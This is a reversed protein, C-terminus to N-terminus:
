NKILRLSVSDENNLIRVNYIGSPWDQIFVPEDKTVTKKLILKGQIDFVEVESNESQNLIFFQDNTPNPYILQQLSQSSDDKIDTCINVIVELTATNKCGINSVGTVTYITTVTPSNVLSPTIAGINNWTYSIASGSAFMTVSQGKCILTNSASVFIPPVPSVTVIAATRSVSNTCTFAEAYYSYTGPALTPTSLTNGLAVTNGGVPANYWTISGSGIATLSTSSGGCISLSPSPTTHSPNAPTTCDYFQVFFGDCGGLGYTSQHSGPTAILTGSPQDTLGALYVHDTNDTACGYANDYGAGGYYTAWIRSGSPSLQALFGDYDGGGYTSMFSGPTAISTGNSSATYGGLYLQGFRSLVVSYCRDEGTGGYYTGWQRIGNANFQAAFGDFQGGAFNFQHCGDTSISNPTNSDSLGGIYIVGTTADRCVSMSRDDGAGGYYTGWQRVGSNNFKVLFGDYGGGGYTFQHSGPTSFNVTSSTQGTMYVNGVADCVCHIAADAGEGGYYTGWQRVGASNFKVLFADENDYYNPQHSGPTAIVTGTTFNVKGCLYSNGSADAACSYGFDIGSGAYYTGWQRVGNTNFKVLFADWDGGAITQHAGPTAIANANSSLTHGSMFVNGSADVACGVGIDRGNGGYYTAWIRNGNQNFKVLVANEMGNGSHSSQHSGVTAVLTGGVSTSYGASYMNGSPDMVSSWLVDVSNGGYYTGWTRLGPDIVLSQSPDFDGLSFSVLDDHILWKAPIIKEGQMVLPAQEIIDGLPTHIVLEGESNVKLKQAGSVQMLIQSVKAGPKVLFDYKLKGHHFYWKLDIGKYLNRYIIERFTKVNQIGEVSGTTYYNAHGDEPLLTEISTPKLSNKWAVDVRQITFSHPTRKPFTKASEKNMLAQLDNDEFDTVKTLQYSIGNQLLHFSLPGDIGGFLVDRRSKNFQDFVQGKNETFGKGTDGLSLKSNLLIVCAVILLRGFNPLSM